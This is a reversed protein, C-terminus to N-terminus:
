RRSNYADVAPTGANEKAWHKIADRKLELDDEDDSFMGYKTLNCDEEAYTLYEFATNKVQGWGKQMGLLDAGYKAKDNLTGCIIDESREIRTILGCEAITIKMALTTYETNHMNILGNTDGTLSAKVYRSARDIYTMKFEENNNPNIYTQEGSKYIINLVYQGKEDTTVTSQQLDVTHENTEYSLIGYNGKPLKVGAYDTVFECYVTEKEIENENVQGGLNEYKSLQEAYPIVDQILKTDTAPDYSGADLAPPTHMYTLQFDDDDDKWKCNASALKNKSNFSPGSGNRIYTFDEDMYTQRMFGFNKAVSSPLASLKTMGSISQNFSERRNQMYCYTTHQQVQLNNALGSGDTHINSDTIQMGALVDVIKGNAIAVDLIDLVKANLAEGNIDGIASKVSTLVEGNKTIVDKELVNDGYKGRSLSEENSIISITGGCATFALLSAVTIITIILILLKKKM